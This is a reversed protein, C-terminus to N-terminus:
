KNDSWIDTYTICEDGAATTNTLVLGKEELFRELKRRKESAKYFRLSENREIDENLKFVSSQTSDIKKIIEKEKKNYWPRYWPKLAKLEESMKKINNELVMRNAVLSSVIDDYEKYRAHTIKHWASDLEKAREGFFEVDCFEIAIWGWPVYDRHKVKATTM